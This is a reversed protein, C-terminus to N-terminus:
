SETHMTCKRKAMEMHRKVDPREERKANVRARERERERMRETHEAISTKWKEVSEMFRIYMEFESQDYFTLKEGM